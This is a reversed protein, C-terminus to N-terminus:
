CCVKLPSDRVTNFLDILQKLTLSKFSDSKLVAGFNCCIYKESTDKLIDINNETAFHYVEICSESCLYKILFDICFKKVESFYFQKFYGFFASISCDSSM